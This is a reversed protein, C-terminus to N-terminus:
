MGSIQPIKLAAKIADEDSKVIRATVKVSQVGQASTPSQATKKQSQVAPKKDNSPVTCGSISLMAALLFIMTLSLALVRIIRNHRSLYAEKM